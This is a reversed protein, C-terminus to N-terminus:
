TTGRVASIPHPEVDLVIYLNGPPGGREGAGRGALRIQTGTDVGAPINVTLRRM